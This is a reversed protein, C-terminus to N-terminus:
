HFLVCKSNYLQALESISDHKNAAASLKQPLGSSTGNLDKSIVPQLNSQAAQRKQELDKLVKETKQTLCFCM